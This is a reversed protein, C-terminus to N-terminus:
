PKLTRTYGDATKARRSSQTARRFEGDREDCSARRCGCYKTLIQQVRDKFRFSEEEKRKVEPHAVGASKFKNKGRGTVKPPPIYVLHANSTVFIDVAADRARVAHRIRPPPTRREIAHAGRAGGHRAAAILACGRGSAASPLPDNTLFPSTM